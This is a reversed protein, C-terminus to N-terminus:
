SPLELCRTRSTALLSSRKEGSMPIKLRLMGYHGGNGLSYVPQQRPQQQGSASSQPDMTQEFHVHLTQNGNPTQRGVARRISRSASGFASSRLLSATHQNRLIPVVPPIFFAASTRPSRTAVFSGVIASVIPATLRTPAACSPPLAGRAPTIHV